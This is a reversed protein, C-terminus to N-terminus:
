SFFLFSFLIPVLIGSDSYSCCCCQNTEDLHWTRMPNGDSYIIFPMEKSEYNSEPKRKRQAFSHRAFANMWGDLEDLEIWNLGDVGYHQITTKKQRGM